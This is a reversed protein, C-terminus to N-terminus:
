RVRREDAPGALGASYEHPLRWGGSGAEGVSTTSSTRHVGAVYFQGFKPSLSANLKTYWKRVDGSTVYDTATVTATSARGGARLVQTGGVLM